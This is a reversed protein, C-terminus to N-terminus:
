KSDIENTLKVVIAFLASVQTELEKIRVNLDENDDQLGFIDESLTEMNTYTAM